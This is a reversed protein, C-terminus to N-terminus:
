QPAGLGPETVRLPAFGYVRWLLLGLFVALLALLAAHVRRAWREGADVPRVAADTM